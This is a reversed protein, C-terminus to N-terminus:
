RKDCGAHRMMILHRRRLEAVLLLSWYGFQAWVNATERSISVPPWTNRQLVGNGKIQGPIEVKADAVRSRLEVDSGSDWLSRSIAIAQWSRHDSRSADVRVIPTPPRVHLLWSEVAIQLRMVYATGVRWWLAVKWLPMQSIVCRSSKSCFPGGFPSSSAPRSSSRRVTRRSPMGEVLSPMTLLRTSPKAM